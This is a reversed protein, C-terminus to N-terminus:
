NRTSKSWLELSELLLEISRYTTDVRASINPTPGSLRSVMGYCVMQSDRDSEAGFGAVSAGSGDLVPTRRPSDLDMHDISGHQLGLDVGASM